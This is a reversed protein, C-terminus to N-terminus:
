PNNDYPSIQRKGKSVNVIIIIVCILPIIIIGVAIAMLIIDHILQFDISLVGM